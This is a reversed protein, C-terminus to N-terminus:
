IALRLQITSALVRGRIAGRMAAVPNTGIYFGASCMVAPVRERTVGDHVGDRNNCEEHHQEIVFDSDKLGREEDHAVAQVDEEHHLIGRDDFPDLLTAFYGLNLGDLDCPRNGGNLAFVILFILFLAHFRHALARM